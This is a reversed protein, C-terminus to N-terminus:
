SAVYAATVVNAAVSITVTGGTVAITQGNTVVASTAPLRVGTVVGAAVAATASGQAPTTGAAPLVTVTDSNDVMAVTAALNVGTFTTGGTVVATANHSDGAASNRVAVTQGNTVAAGGAAPPDGTLQAPTDANVDMWIFGNPIGNEPAFSDDSLYGGLAAAWQARNQPNDNSAAVNRAYEIPNAQGTPVYVVCARRNNIVTVGGAQQPLTMLVLM